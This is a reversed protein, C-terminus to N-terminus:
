NEKGSKQIEEYSEKTYFFNIQRLDEKSYGSLVNRDDWEDIGFIQDLKLLAYAVADFERLKMSSIKKSDSTAKREKLFRMFMLKSIKPDVFEEELFLEDFGIVDLIEEM